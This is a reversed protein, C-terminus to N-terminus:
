ATGKIFNHYKNICAQLSKATNYARHTHTVYTINGKNDKSKWVAPTAEGNPGHHWVADAKMVKAREEDTLPVKNDKLKQFESKKAENLSERVINKKYYENYIKEAIYEVRQNNEEADKMLDNLVDKNVNFFQRTKNIMEDVGTFNKESIGNERMLIDTFYDKVLTKYEKDPINFGAWNKIIKVEDGYKDLKTNEKSENINQKFNRNFNPVLVINFRKSNPEELIENMIDKSVMSKIIDIRIVYNALPKIDNYIREEQEDSTYRKDHYPVLKFRQKLKNYDLVIRAYGFTGDSGLDAKRTLSVYPKTEYPLVPFEPDPYQQKLESYEQDVLNTNLSNDQIIYLLADIDTFHYIEKGNKLEYELLLNKHLIQRLIDM